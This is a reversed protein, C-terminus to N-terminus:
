RKLTIGEHKDHECIYDILKHLYCLAESAKGINKLLAVDEDCHLDVRQKHEGVFDILSVCLNHTYEKLEHVEHIERKM